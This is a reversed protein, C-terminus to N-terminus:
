AARPLSLKLAAAHIKRVRVSPIMPILRLDRLFSGLRAEPPRSLALTGKVALPLRLWDVGRGPRNM